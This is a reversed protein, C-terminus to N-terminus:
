RKRLRIFENVGLLGLFFRVALPMLKRKPDTFVVPDHLPVVKGVTELDCRGATQVNKVWEVDAGYTLAIVYDDGARFVNLPTRYLKGSKRGVYRLIGFWPLWGAVLRTIPNVVRITFPRM